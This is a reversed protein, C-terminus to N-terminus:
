NKFEDPTDPQAYPHAKKFFDLELCKNNIEKLSPYEDLNVDYRLASFIHAVVFMDAATVRDGVSYESKSKAVMKELATLGRKHFHVAWQNKQDENLGFDRKLTQLVYLNCLPQIGSNVLECIQRIQAAEAPDSSFLLPEPNIQDLYEFIAMSQSITTSGDRIAPVQEIPNIDTYNDTRQEGGNNLLHVPKYSYEMNKFNLAIRVRYSASSRFYSYLEM